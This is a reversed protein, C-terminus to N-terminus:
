TSYATFLSLNSTIPTMILVAKVMGYLTRGTSCYCANSVESSFRKTWDTRFMNLYTWLAKQVSFDHSGELTTLKTWFAAPITLLIDSVLNTIIDFRNDRSNDM